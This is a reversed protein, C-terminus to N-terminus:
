RKEMAAKKEGCCKEGAVASLSGVALAALLGLAVIKMM